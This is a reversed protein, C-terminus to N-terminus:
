QTTGDIDVIGQRGLSAKLRTTAPRASAQAARQLVAARAEAGSGAGADVGGRAEHEGPGPGSKHEVQAARPQPAGAAYSATTLGTVAALVGATLAVVSHKRTRVAM